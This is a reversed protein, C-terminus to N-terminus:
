RQPFRSGPVLLSKGEQRYPWNFNGQIARRLWVWFKMELVECVVASNTEVEWYDKQQTVDKKLRQDWDNYEVSSVGKDGMLIM